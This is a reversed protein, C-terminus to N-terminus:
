EGDEYDDGFNLVMYMGPRSFRLERRFGVVWRGGIAAAAEAAAEELRRKGELGWREHRKWDGGEETRNREGARGGRM